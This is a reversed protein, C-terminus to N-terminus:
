SCSGPHAWDRSAGVSSRLEPHTQCVPQAVMPDPHGSVPKSAAPDLTNPQSELRHAHPPLLDGRGPLGELGDGSFGASGGRLQRGRLLWGAAGVAGLQVDEFALGVTRTLARGGGGDRPGPEGGWGWGGSGLRPGPGAGSRRDKPVSGRRGGPGQCRGRLGGAGWATGGM